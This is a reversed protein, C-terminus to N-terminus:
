RGRGLLSELLRALGDAEVDDTVMAAANRVEAKANGM